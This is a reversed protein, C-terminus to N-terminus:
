FIYRGQSCSALQITDGVEWQGKASGVSRIGFGYINKDVPGLDRDYLRITGKWKVERNSGRQVIDLVTYDWNKKGVMNNIEYKPASFYKGPGANYHDITGTITVISCALPLIFLFKIRFVLCLPM